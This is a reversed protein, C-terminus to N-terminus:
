KIYIKRHSGDKYKVIYVGKALAAARNSVRMGGLNYYGEVTNFAGSAAALEALGSAGADGINFLCPSQVTGSVGAAFTHREAVNYVTGDLEDLAFFQLQEGGEGYVTLFIQSDVWKGAGRCEDGAYALLTFREPEVPANEWLLSGIIGMVNPYAHKDINYTLAAKGKVRAGRSFNVTQAPKHFTLSKAQQTYLMYGKGTELSTLAGTWKGNTYTAFGDQGIITEGEEATYDTLADSLTQTGNPTYGIWNWGPMLTIPLTPSCLMEDSFFKDAELMQIKYLRGAEMEHLTGTMSGESTRYAESNQGVIRTASQSLNAPAISTSLCHSTWNWGQALELTFGNFLLSMLNQDTGTPQDEITITNTREVTPHAMQYFQRGGDPYRGVSQNGTHSTYTLGDIFTKMDPHANFYTQNNKVFEDSSVVIVQQGDSNGLKFSTHLQQSRGNLANTGLGDAWVVLHGKAPIKTSKEIQFKLPQDSDDSLYLGKVDLEADTTNYLEFWDTRKWTDSVYVTNAASVENVKIPMAIASKLDNDDAIPEYTAVLNINSEESIDYEESTSIVSSGNMWGKFTYGEPAQAKIIAPAFFQGNFKGTPIDHGNLLLKANEINSSLSAKITSQGKLQMPEFSRLYNIATNQRNRLQKVTNVSSSLADQKWEMGMPGRVVEELQNAIQTARNGELVSGGMLCFADIFRKRFSDNQLLNKFLTVFRIQVNTYQGLSAPRLKDFTYIEKGMFTNFPNTTSFAFDLDFIVFRFKGGNRHRFGKVNNQPWDTGGLYFEAAMYNVYEDIDLLKEIEAYTTADAANPSLDDVLYNFADPTGCKQIYGSDPSMEFQDIEDDDWGYNADVFHKNNPERVNLVGIYEGNIFEHVPQYSQCDINVGSTEIMYQIAPDIFRGNNDNGGNRIQLTRNRIYPKQKFFQYPLYKIGGLEKSGKLKFSHPLWARSWGGCMELNADQNLVMQGDSNLYSFNVPREWNMNWNCNADQGNGPRGNPGTSFVGIEESYIFDPDAVVSVVPLTYDQYKSIYSRTVVNSPLKGDAFLRFRYNHTDSIYFRGNTSTEGNTMTPLSGDTTYRLTCGSPITVTIGMSNTFLQSPQDVEPAALQQTAYTTSANSEGPTALTALGWTAGGDTTRAYSIREMSSPYSQQAILTGEDDSVYITGGDVDLKFPANQPAIDNSDFWIVKYGQAPIWGVSVPMKWALMNQADTSIYCDALSVAKDTPNYLEMWGDFNFAPSIFEDVNSAMIENIILSESTPPNKTVTLQVSSTLNTGDITTATIMTTGAGCTSVIGNADVTAVAEDSSSWKVKQALANTPLVTATAQTTQGITLSTENISATISTAKVIEGKFELKFNDFICWNNPVWNDNRLGITIDGNADFELSNWYAGNAFAVAASEMTNPFYHTEVNGSWWDGSQYTWCGDTWNPLEYSYLNAVLQQKDGAFLVATMDADGDKYCSYSYDNDAQRYYSQVSLRYHGEPLGTLDQWLHFWAQWFEMSEVRVNCSGEHEWQWGDATSGDFGPNTIFFQTVDIWGNEDPDLEGPLEGFYELKFNDIVCYNSGKEIGCKIGITLNSKAQIDFEMSNKYLGAEIAIGAADRGDPYWNINDPTWSRGAANYDLSESFISVLQQENNGAYLYADLSEENKQHASWAVANEGDRYFSQVSLRYHGKPLKNLTQHFDFSGSFFRANGSAIGATGTSTTWTWSGDDTDFTPNKIFESTIDTWETPAAQAVATAWLMLTTLLWISLKRYFKNM